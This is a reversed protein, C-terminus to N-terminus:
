RTEGDLKRLRSAHNGTKYVVTSVAERTNANLVSQAAADKELAQLREEALQLQASHSQLWDLHSDLLGTTLANTRSQSRIFEIVLDIQEGIHRFTSDHSDIIKLIDSRWGM